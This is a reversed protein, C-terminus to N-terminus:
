ICLFIRKKKGYPNITYNYPPSYSNMIIAANSNAGAGRFSFLGSYVNFNTATKQAHSFQVAVLALLLLLCLKKLQM